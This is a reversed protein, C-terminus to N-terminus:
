SNRTRIWYSKRGADCKSGGLDKLRKAVIPDDSSYVLVSFGDDVLRQTAEITGVPDPLLTKQDGLVELKVWESGKNGLDRLLERGLRAFVFLTM